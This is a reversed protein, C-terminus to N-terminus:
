DLFGQCANDVGQRGQRRFQALFDGFNGDVVIFIDDAILCAAQQLIYEHM